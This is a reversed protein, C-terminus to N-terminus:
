PASGRSKVVCFLGLLWPAVAYVAGKVGGFLILGVACLCLVTGIILLTRGPHKPRSEEDRLHSVIEEFRRSEDPDPM